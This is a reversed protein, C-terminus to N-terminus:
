ARTDRRHRSGYRLVVWGFLTLGLSLLAADLPAARWVPLMLYEFLAGAAIVGALPRQAPMLPRARRGEVFLMVALGVLIAISAALALLM